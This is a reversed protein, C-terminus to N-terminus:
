IFKPKFLQRQPVGNMEDKFEFELDFEHDETKLARIRQHMQMPLQSRV